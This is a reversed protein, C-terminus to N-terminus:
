VSSGQVTPTTLDTQPLPAPGPLTLDSTGTPSATFGIALGSSGPPVYDVGPVNEILGLVKNYRVTAFGQVSNLWPSQGAANAANQPNGWLFPNLYTVLAADINAIVASASYGPLIHAEYTIYVKTFTPAIVFVQFNIERFSELWTAIDGMDTSDLANGNPDTVFVTVCRSNGTTGAQISVGSATATAAASMVLTSAGTNTSVVTTGAPIGNGTLVTGAAVDTFSSVSSLTTSSSTTSATFTAADPNYGDIATARGIATASAIIGSPIALTKVAYDNATIPAENLLSLAQALMDQYAPDTQQDQGGATEGTVSISTVWDLADVLAIPSSLGNYASGTDSAVLNVTATSSGSAVIVDTEVYFAYDAITVQTGGPITHGLTDALTWTSAVVAAAGQQYPTDLLQTGFERFIASPVQAAVNTLDAAQAGGVNLLVIEQNGENPVYGVVGNAALNAALRAIATDTITAADTTLAIDLFDTM